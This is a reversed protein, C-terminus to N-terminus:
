EGEIWPAAWGAAFLSSFSLTQLEQGGGGGDEVGVGVTCGGGVQWTM